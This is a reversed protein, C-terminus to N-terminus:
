SSDGSELFTKDGLQVKKVHDTTLLRYETDDAAKDLDFLNQYAFPKVTPATSTLSRRM